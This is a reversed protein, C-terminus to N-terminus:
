DKTITSKSYIELKKKGVVIRIEVFENGRFPYQSDKVLDAPITIYQTNSNPSKIVKSQVKLVM